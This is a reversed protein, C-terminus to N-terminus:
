LHKHKGNTQKWNWQTFLDEIQEIFDYYFTSATLYPFNFGGPPGDRLVASIDQFDIIGSFWAEVMASLINIDNSLDINAIKDDNDILFSKKQKLHSFSRQLMLAKRIIFNLRFTISLSETNNQNEIYKKVIIEAGNKIVELNDSSIETRLFFHDLIEFIFSMINEIKADKDDGPKRTTEDLDLRTAELFIGILVSLIFRRFHWDLYYKTPEDNKTKENIFDIVEQGVGDTQSIENNLNDTIVVRIFESVEDNWYDETKWKITDFGRYLVMLRKFLRNRRAETWIPHTTLKIKNHDMLFQLTEWAFTFIRAIHCFRFLNDQTPILKREDSFENFSIYDNEFCDLLSIFQKENDKEDNSIPILDKLISTNDETEHLAKQYFYLLDPVFQLTIFKTSEVAKKLNKKYHKERSKIYRPECSKIEKKLKELKKDYWPLTYSNFLSQIDRPYYDNVKNIIYGATFDKKKMEELRRIWSENNWNGGNLNLLSDLEDQDYVAKKMFNDIAIKKTSKGLLKAAMKVADKYRVHSDALDVLRSACAKLDQEDPTGVFLIKAKDNGFEFLKKELVPTLQNYGPPNDLLFYVSNNKALEAIRKMIDFIFDCFALSFIQDFLLMPSLNSESQFSGSPILVPQGDEEITSSIIKNLVNEYASGDQLYSDFLSLLEVNGDRKLRKDKIPIRPHRLFYPTVKSNEKVDDSGQVTATTGGFDLDLIVVRTDKNEESKKVEDHDIKTVPQDALIAGDGPAITEPEDIEAKETTTDRTLLFHALFLAVLSKGVGGKTSHISILRMNEPSIKMM